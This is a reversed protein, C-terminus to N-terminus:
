TVGAGYLGTTGAPFMPKQEVDSSCVKITSATGNAACTGLTSAVAPDTCSSGSILTTVVVSRVTIDDHLEETASSCADCGVPRTGPAILRPIARLRSM